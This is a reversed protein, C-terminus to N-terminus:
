DLGFFRRANDTTVRAVSAPDEGRAAAVAEGVLPVHGPENPRGRHPEPTLYPSDTEVLLREAPVRAAAARLNEASKFSVNGAFSIHAGLELARQLQTEDGSWCHFVFRDPPGENELVELAPDISSRTHIILAKDYRKALGIHDRFAREQDVARAYDRYFDLGSEGVAVVEPAAVMEEIATATAGDWGNASNPHLGVAAHVREDQALQIAQLSSSIDIGVTVMSTVGSVAAAEVIQEASATECLHLHCHSDFWM